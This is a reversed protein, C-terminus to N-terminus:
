LGEELETELHDLDEMSVFQEHPLLIPQGSFILQGRYTELNVAVGLPRRPQLHVQCYRKYINRASALLSTNLPHLHPVAVDTVADSTSSAYAVSIDRRQIISPKELLLILKATLRGVSYVLRSCFIPDIPIFILHYVWSLM